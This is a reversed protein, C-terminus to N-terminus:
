VGPPASIPNYFFDDVLSFYDFFPLPVLAFETTIVINRDEFDQNTKQAYFLTGDALHAKYPASLDPLVIKHAVIPNDVDILLVFIDNNDSLTVTFKNGPLRAPSVSLATLNNKITFTHSTQPPLQKQVFLTQSIRGCFDDSLKPAIFKDTLVRTTKTLAGAKATRECMIPLLTEFNVGSFTHLAYEDTADSVVSVYLAGKDDRYAHPTCELFQESLGTSIPKFTDTEPTWYHARWIRTNRPLEVYESLCCLFTNDDFVFPMHTKIEDTHLRHLAAQLLPVPQFAM